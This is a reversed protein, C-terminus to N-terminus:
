EKLLANSNWKKIFDATFNKEFKSTPEYFSSIHKIPDKSLRIDAKSLLCALQNQILAKKFLALLRESMYFGLSDDKILKMITQKIIPNEISLKIVNDILPTIESKKKELVVMSQILLFLFEEYKNRTYELSITHNILKQALKVLNGIKLGCEQLTCEAEITIAIYNLVMGVFYSHKNWLSFTDLYMKGHAAEYCIALAYLQAVISMDFKEYYANLSGTIDDVVWNNELSYWIKKNQNFGSQIVLQNDKKEVKQVPVPILQKAVAEIFQSDNQMTLYNKKIEALQELEQPLFIFKGRKVIYELIDLSIFDNMYDIVTYGYRNKISIPPSIPVLCPMHFPLKSHSKRLNDILDWFQGDAEQLEFLQGYEKLDKALLDKPYNVNRIFSSTDKKISSLLKYKYVLQDLDFIIDSLPLLYARNENYNHMSCFIYPKDNQWPETSKFYIKVINRKSSITSILLKSVLVYNKEKDTVIWENNNNRELHVLKEVAHLDVFSLLLSIFIIFIMSLGRIFKKENFYTGTNSLLKAFDM